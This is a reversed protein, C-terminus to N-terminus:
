GCGSAANEFSPGNPLMVTGFSTLTVRWTSASGSAPRASRVQAESPSPVGSTVASFRPLPIITSNWTVASVRQDSRGSDPLKTSISRRMTPRAPVVVLRSSDALSVARSTTGGVRMRSPKPANPGGVAVVRGTAPRSVNRAGGGVIRRAEVARGLAQERDVRERGGVTQDPEVELRQVSPELGILDALRLVQAPRHQERRERRSASSASTTNRSAPPM